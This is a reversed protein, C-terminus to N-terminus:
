HFQHYIHKKTTDIVKKSPSAYVVPGTAVVTTVPPMEVPVMKLTTTVAAMAERANVEKSLSVLEPREVPLLTTVALTAEVEVRRVRTPTVSDAAIV